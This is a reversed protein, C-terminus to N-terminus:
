VDSSVEGSVQGTIKDVSGSGSTNALFWDEGASGTLSDVDLVDQSTDDHVTNAGTADNANLRYAATNLGTGHEEHSIRTDYDADTRNWEEYIHCWADDHNISGSRNDYDTYGAILIDDGPNGVLRDAGTGGVLADRGSGGLLTDNGSGGFAIGGGNGLNLSDNGNDGYLWAENSIAGALQITDNGDLGFVIIRGSPQTETTTEGNITVDLTGATPGPDIHINDAGSTGIILLATGGMCTDTITSVSGGGGRSQPPAITLSVTATSTGGDGDSITYTFSDAGSYTSAPTYTFTGDTNVIVSGHATATAVGVNGASGNVASVTLPDNAGAPDSDAGTGTDDSILNGSVANGQETNYTNATATPNANSVTLTFQVSAVGGHGDDATITVIHSAEDDSTAKSWNWTGSSTSSQTVTGESATITVDDLDLDDFTGSNTATQTESVTVAGNEATITPPDNVATVNINVTAINSDAQGDNAKYTFVDSGNYNQNPTYTFTGDSNLVLMGHAPGSVLTASLSNGDADTDNVLVGDDNTGDVTGTPDNANLTTDEAVTYSDDNAAPAVNSFLVVDNGDGGVYTIKFAKSNVIVTAGEPLGNFSGVVPDTGDNNIVTYSNASGTGTATFSSDTITVTGTVDLQDGTAGLDAQYTSGAGFIFNTTSLTGISGLAPRLLSSGGTVITNGSGIIIGSGGLTGNSILDNGEHDIIGVGQLTIGPTLIGNASLTNTQKLILKGTGPGSTPGISLQGPGVNFSNTPGTLTLDVLTELRATANAQVKGAYTQPSGRVSWQSVSGDWQMSAIPLNQSANTAVVLLGTTGTFQGSHLNNFEDNALSANPDAKFGADFEVTGAALDGRANFQRVTTSNVTTDIAATAAFTFTGGGRMGLVSANAGDGSWLQTLTIPGSPNNDDVIAQNVREITTPLNNMIHVSENAFGSSSLTTPVLTGIAGTSAGPSSYAGAIDVRTAAGANLTGDNTMAGTFRLNYQNNGTVNMTAGSAISVAGSIVHTTESNTGGGGITSDDAVINPSDNIINLANPLNLAATRVLQLSGASINIAGSGLANNTTVRLAGGTLNTGGTFTNNSNLQLSGGLSKTLIGSGNLAGGSITYALTTNVSTSAPSVGAPEIVVSGAGTNAFSVNDGDAFTTLQNTDADRWNITSHDWVNSGAQPTWVLNRPGTNPTVLFAGSPGNGVIQGSDNIARAVSLYVSGTPVLTNLDQMAGNDYVWAYAFSDAGGAVTGSDNIGFGWGSGGLDTFVGGQYIYPRGTTYDHGTVASSDNISYSDVSHPLFFMGSGPTDIYGLPQGGVVDIGVIQGSSNIQRASATDPATITHPDDAATLDTLQADGVSYLFAHLSGDGTASHGTIVGDNGIFIANTEGGLTPIQQYAGNQYVFSLGSGDDGFVTAVGNDNISQAFADTTGPPLPLVTMAHTNSDYIFPQGSTTRGVVQGVENVDYADAAGLAGLDTLTYGSLLTRNELREVAAQVAFRLVTNWKQGRPSSTRSSRARLM